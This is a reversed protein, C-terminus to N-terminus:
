CDINLGKNMFVDIISLGAAFEGTGHQPYSPHAFNQYILGLGADEFMTDVQYGGAGGGCLYSTGGAAKTMSILLETANGRANLSSGLLLKKEWGALSAVATIANINFESVSTTQFFILPEIFNMTQRFFPAKSYNAQLSSIFKKRWQVSDDIEMDAITRYGHFDRRVPMTIWSPKGSVLLRVRNIWTGKGSKSFQVNDMLVFTDVHRMKDFFGLWPFFNPQHIAVIKSM